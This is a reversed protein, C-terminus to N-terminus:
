RMALMGAANIVAHMLIPTLISGSRRYAWALCFGAPIYQVFCLLLTPMPYAGIYSSIHAFCFGLISLVYAAKPHHPYFGGFLAGRFLLEEGVPVLLVTSVAMPIFDQVAMEMVNSDNVNVFGPVTAMFVLGLLLSLLWYLGLGLLASGLIQWTQSLAHKLTLMLFRRFIILVALVNISFIIVNLWTVSVPLGLLLNGAALLRPLIAVEFLLYRIGWSTERRDPYLVFTNM